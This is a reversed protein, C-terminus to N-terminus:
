RTLSSSMLFFICIKADFYPINLSLQNIDKKNTEPPLLHRKILELARFTRYCFAQDWHTGLCDFAGFTVAPGFFDHRGTRKFQYPASPVSIPIGRCFFTGFFSGRLARLLFRLRILLSELDETQVGTYTPYFLLDGSVNHSLKMGLSEMEYFKLCGWSPGAEPPHNKGV